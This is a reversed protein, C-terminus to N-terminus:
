SSFLLTGNKSGNDVLIRSNTATDYLLASTQPAEIKLSAGNNVEILSENSDLRIVGGYRGSSTSTTNISVTTDEDTIQVVPLVGSIQALKAQSDM